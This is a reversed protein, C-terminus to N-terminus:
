AAVEPCPETLKARLAAIARSAHSKVTGRSVQLVDAIEAETLGEYYRLVLVARQKVPLRLLERWLADREAVAEVADPVVAAPADPVPQERYRRGRWWSTATTVMTRRVQAELAGTDRSRPGAAYTKVLATQVLDEARGRDGVLLYASRLLAGSRAAVFERFREEDAPQM